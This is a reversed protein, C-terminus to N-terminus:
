QDPAFISINQQAQENKMLSPSAIHAPIAAIETDESPVAPSTHSVHMVSKFDHPGLAIFRTSTVPLKLPKMQGASSRKPLAIYASATVPQSPADAFSEAALFMCLGSTFIHNWWRM